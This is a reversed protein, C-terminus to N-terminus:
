RSRAVVAGCQGGLVRGDGLHLEEDLRGPAVALAHRQQAVPEVRAVQPEFVGLPGDHEVGLALDGQRGVIGVEIPHASVVPQPLGFAAETQPEFVDPDAGEAGTEADIAPNPAADVLEILLLADGAAGTPAPYDTLWGGDGPAHLDREHYLAIPELFVVVRGCARALATCGRLMRAADDGRSPCAIVLGPIDRLGGISDDNHFHGGFGKQYALGAIRVVM